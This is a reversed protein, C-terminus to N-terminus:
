SADKRNQRPFGAMAPEGDDETFPLAAAEDFSEKRGRSYAWIVIGIFTLMSVVTLISRWDNIDM